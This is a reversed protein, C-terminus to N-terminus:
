PAREAERDEAAEDHALEQRQERRRHDIEREVAETAAARPPPDGLFVIRSRQLWRWGLGPLAALRSRCRERGIPMFRERGNTTRGIPVTRRVAPTASAPMAANKTSGTADSGCISRGIMETLAFMGPALGSVIACLTAVGSSRWRPTMGLTLSIVDVLETPAVRIVSCNSRPRSM